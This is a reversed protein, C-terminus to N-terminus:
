FLSKLTNAAQTLNKATATVTNVANAVPFAINQFGGAAANLGGVVGAIAQGASIGQSAVKAVNQFTNVATIATGLANLPSSFAQGSSIAGFISSAGQVAGALTGTAGLSVPSLSGDYHEIGFGSPSGKGVIGTSYTVAEYLVTMSNEVSQSASYDLTDHDWSQILPNILKYGSWEKKGLQYITIDNFFPVTSQNDLGYPSRIYPSDKMATRFYAESLNASSSDAYYYKFYAEWLKRSVGNNDDHLRIKIPTYTVSTQINKKRNYQNLTETQIQFKPLDVTKALLNIENQHKPLFSADVRSIATSNINFVVHYLFKVKPALRMDDDVYVRSAHQADRLNPGGPSTGFYNTAKSSM